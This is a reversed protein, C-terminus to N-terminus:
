ATGGAHRRRRVRLKRLEEVWLVTSALAALPLLTSAQLPQAHFLAGLAPVQLVAIQLAISLALGGALWHNALLRPGLASATASQCNLVNFWCCMALLTFTESRVLAEPAGEALRWAFWGFTLAAITPAMLAVRGLLARDLLAADRPM